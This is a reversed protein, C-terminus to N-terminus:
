FDVHRVRERGPSGRQLVLDGESQERGNGRGFPVPTRYTPRRSSDTFFQYQQNFLFFFTFSLFVTNHPRLIKLGKFSNISVQNKLFSVVEPKPLEEEKEKKVKKKVVKKKKKKVEVPAADKVVEEAAKAAADEEAGEARGIKAPSLEMESLSVKRTATEGGAENRAVMQYDGADKKTAGDIQLQVV